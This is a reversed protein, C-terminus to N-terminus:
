RYRLYEHVYAPPDGDVEEAEVVREEPKQRSQIRDKGTAARKVSHGETELGRVGPDPEPSKEQILILVLLSCLLLILANIITRKRKMIREPHM